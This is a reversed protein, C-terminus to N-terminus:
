SRTSRWVKRGQLNQVPRANSRYFHALTDIQKASADMPQVVVHWKVGETCPPTTLSGDYRFFTKQSPFLAMPNSEFTASAVGVEEPISKLLPELAPLPKGEEFLVGIVALTGDSHRHVFHLEMDYPQGSVKHESPIHFHYQILDYREGEIEIYLRQKPLDAQVTHGNNKVITEIPKYYFKIPLLENNRHTQDIDIPSQKKGVKCTAFGSDLEGWAQPGQSGSYAWHASAKPATGSHNPTDHSIEKPKDHPSDGHHEDKSPASAPHAAPQAAPAGKHESHQTADHDGGGGHDHAESHDDVVSGHSSAGKSLLSVIGYGLGFFATTAVLALGWVSAQNLNTKAM